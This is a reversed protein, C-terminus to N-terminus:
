LFLNNENASKLNNLRTLIQDTAFILFFTVYQTPLM